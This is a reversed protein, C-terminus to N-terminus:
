HARGIEEADLDVNGLEKALALGDRKGRVPDVSMMLPFPLAILVALFIFAPRIEGTADTIAGVITPGFISSGKDTIAYLAYFSAESGEPVLQGFLSRCYSSLGGIVLGYVCGIPYVEWPQQLGLFGLRRIAPIYALCAYLPILEFILLCVLITKGPSMGMWQAATGWFFAGIVGFTMVVVNIMALSAPGMHLTTKAFLIATGSVTAISDSLLFWAGLFLLMDKLRRARLATKGLSKWGHAAYTLFSARKGGGTLKLPPGPRPRLWIASPITFVAWWAGILFLALKIALLNNQRFVVVIAVALLQVIIGALYGIGTGNSSIRASVKMQVAADDDFAREIAVVAETPRPLLAAEAGARDDADDASARSTSAEASARAPATPLASLSDLDKVRDPSQADPHHRVLVPLFSNLLVYSAGFSTNSVIALVAALIFVHSNLPLFLMTAIAGAFAFTLLLTKRYRGHDAAGAMSVIVLAQFLVSVSFTYMAFSATNIEMGLLYVVCQGNDPAASPHLTPPDPLVPGTRCPTTGDSALVGRDRALQELCIPIFSTIGCM